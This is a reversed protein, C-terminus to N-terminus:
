GCQESCRLPRCPLDTCDSSEDACSLAAWLVATLRARDGADCPSRCRPMGRVKVFGRRYRPSDQSADVSACSPCAAPSVEMKRSNLPERTTPSDPTGVANSRAGDPQMIPVCPACDTQPAAVAACGDANHTQMPQLAEASARLLAVTLTALTIPQRGHARLRAAPTDHGNVAEPLRELASLVFHSTAKALHAQLEDARLDAWAIMTGGAMAVVSALRADCRPRDCVIFTLGSLLAHRDVPRCLVARAPVDSADIGLMSCWETAIDPPYRAFSPLETFLVSGRALRATESLWEPHVIVVGRVLAELFEVTGSLTCTLLYTYPDEDRDALQAGIDHAMQSVWSAERDGLAATRMVLPVWELRYCCRNLGFCVASGPLLATPVAVTM